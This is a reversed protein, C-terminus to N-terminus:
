IDDDTDGTQNPDYGVFVPEFRYHYWGADGSRGHIDRFKLLQKEGFDSPYTKTVTFPTKYQYTEFFIKEYRAAPKIVDGVEFLKKTPDDM